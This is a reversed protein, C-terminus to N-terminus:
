GRKILSMIHEIIGDSRQISSEFRKDLSEIFRKSEGVDDKGIAYHDNVGVYIGGRRGTDAIRASPEVTVRIRDEPSKAKPRCGIMSLSAMGGYEGCLELEEGAKGWPELPALMRGVRDRETASGACFHVDRNIGAVSIPTYSLAERFMNRVLDCARIYPGQQTSVTLRDPFATFELWDASFTLVAPTAVQLQADDATGDPLIGHLEFWAPTLTTPNFNGVLVISVGSIEPEILMGGGGIIREVLALLVGVGRSRVVHPCLGSPAEGALSMRVYPRTGVYCLAAVTRCVACAMCRTGSHIGHAM